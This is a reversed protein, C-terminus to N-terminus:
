AWLPHPNWVLGLVEVKEGVGVGNEMLSQPGDKVMCFDTYNDSPWLPLTSAELAPLSLDEGGAAGTLDHSATRTAVKTQPAALSWLHHLQFAWSLTKLIWFKCWIQAPFYGGEIGFNSCMSEDAQGLFYGHSPKKQLINCPLPLCAPQKAGGEHTALHQQWKPNVRITEMALAIGFLM